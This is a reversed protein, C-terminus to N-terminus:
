MKVNAVLGIMIHTPAEAQIEIMVAEATMVGEVTTGAEAIMVVEAQIEIMGEEETTVVEVTMVAEALIETMVGEATMVAETITGLATTKEQNEPVYLSKLASWRTLM